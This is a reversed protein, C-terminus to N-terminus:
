ITTIGNRIEGANKGLLWNPWKKQDKGYIYQVYMMLGMAIHESYAGHKIFAYMKRRIENKKHRSIHLKGDVITLGLLHPITTGCNNKIKISKIRFGFKKPIELLEQQINRSIIKSSAFNIDDVYISWQLQYKQCTKEFEQCMPKYVLNLLAPSSSSGQPLRRQGKHRYTVFQALAEALCEEVGLDILTLSIIKDTISPFAEAIDIGFHYGGKKFLYTLEEVAMKANRESVFGFANKHAPSLQSFWKGLEKYVFQIEPHPETIQRKKGNKENIIYSSFGYFFIKPEQNKSADSNLITKPEFMLNSARRLHKKPINTLISIGELCCRLRLEESATSLLAPQLIQM